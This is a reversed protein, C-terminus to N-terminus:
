GQTDGNAEGKVSDYYMPLEYWWGDELQDRVRQDIEEMSPVLKKELSHRYIYDDRTGDRHWAASAIAWEIGSPLPIGIARRKGIALSLNWRLWIPAGPISQSVYYFWRAIHIPPRPQGRVHTFTLM